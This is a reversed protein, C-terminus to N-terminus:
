NRQYRARLEHKQLKGTPLRPLAPEFDISRPCKFGALHERCYSMLQARLADEAAGLDTPQVVAKVEEGFEDNPIGIVAVDEVAPHAILVNEIEQPYINVGGSIITHARRDTLYLFGEDDLYGLDGITSWGTENRSARTKEPDNHYEFRAGHAVYVSGPEGVPLEIGAEDLVHLEGFVARGVSGPHTLWDDPGIAVFVNGETGGYYEYLIPGWWDLMQQKIHPPCPAASHIAVRHSSLDHASRSVRDLGLLRVFMTPVWQSHTIEHEDIHRLAAEPDFRPMVVVTGGLRQVGLAFRLPGAHYLPATSLYRSAADFGYLSDLLSVLFPPSGLPRSKWTPKVGKPRGTTGSSYLMDVGECEDVIPEASKTAVTEDLDEYGAIAGGMMLCNDLAAKEGIAAALDRQAASTILFRAGSDQLIYGAEEVTLHYNITTYILGARQAAWVVELFRPDNELLIAIHHGPLLGRDRFLHALRNSRDDLQRYTITEGTDAAVVAPKDPSRRAHVGPHL